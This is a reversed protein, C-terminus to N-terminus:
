LYMILTLCDCATEACLAGTFARLSYRIGTNTAYIGSRAQRTISLCSLDIAVKLGMVCAGSVPAM